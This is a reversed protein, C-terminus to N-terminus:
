SVENKLKLIVKNRTYNYAITLCIARLFMSVGISLWVGDIGLGLNKAFYLAMPIRIVTMSINIYAPYKTKGLGNIIGSTVMEVCMFVQAIGLIELYSAGMAITDKESVFLQILSESFIYFFAGNILGILITFAMANKYGEEIRKYQKAGFNQGTFSMMASSLGGICMYTIGEVQNGIKQAAIADSGWESVIKAIVIGVLTFLIRQLSAPFGVKFIEGVKEFRFIWEERDGFFAKAYRKLFLFLTIFQAVGTALAAGMVGLDFTFIFLPDLVLNIFVGITSYKLSTKSDGRANSIQTMLLVTLSFFLFGSMWTLYTYAYDEVIPKEFNFFSIIPQFFIQMLVGMLLIIGFLAILSERSYERAQQENNKGISQSVLIGSGILFISCISWVLQIFFSSTGVGAVADSSIKGIWAIDIVNNATQMFMAGIIPLALTLIGKLVSGKTLDKKM